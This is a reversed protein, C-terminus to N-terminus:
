HGKCIKDPIRGGCTVCSNDVSAVADLTNYCRFAVSSPGWVFERGLKRARRKKDRDETIQAGDDSSKLTKADFTTLVFLRNPAWMPVADRTGDDRLVKRDPLHGVCRIMAWTLQRMRRDTNDWDIGTWSVPSSARRMQPILRRVHKPMGSDRSDMIGTIEDLLVETNYVNHLQTWSTFREFNPHPNGSEPDLISVTSLVRTGSALAPLVDRVMAFSKGHGNLGTYGRVPADRRKRIGRTFLERNDPRLLVPPAVVRAVAAGGGEARDDDLPVLEDLERLDALSTM